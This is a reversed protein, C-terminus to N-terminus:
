ANKILKVVFPHAMGLLKACYLFRAKVMKLYINKILGLNELYCNKNWDPYVMEFDCLAKKIESIPVGSKFAVLTAGYCIYKVGLYETEYFFSTKTHCQIIDFAEIMEYFADKNPKKSASDERFYYNYLPIDLIGIKAASVLVQAVLVGDEGHRLCSHEAESILNRKVSLRCLSMAYNAIVDSKDSTIKKTIQDRTKTGNQFVTFSDFIVLDWANSEIAEKITYVFSEEFWDDADCFSIYDMTANQVGIKRSYGPGKNNSNRILKINLESKEAYDKLKEYSGDTSCDDVIVIEDAAVTQNELSKLCNNIYKWGNYFPIVVTITM